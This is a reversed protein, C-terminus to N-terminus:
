LFGHADSTEMKWHTERVKKKLPKFNETYLDESRQNPKNRSIENKKLAITFPLTDMNKRQINTSLM